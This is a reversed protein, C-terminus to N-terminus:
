SLPKENFHNIVLGSDFTISIDKNPPSIEKHNFCHIKRAIIKTRPQKSFPILYIARRSEAFLRQPERRKTKVSLYAFFRLSGCLSERRQFEPLFVTKRCYKFLPKSFIIFFMVLVPNFRLPKAFRTTTPKLVLVVM